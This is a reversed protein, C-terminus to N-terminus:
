KHEAVGLWVIFIDVCRTNNLFHGIKVIYPQTLLGNHWARSTLTPMLNQKSARINQM